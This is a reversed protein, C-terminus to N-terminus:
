AADAVAPPGGVLQAVLNEATHYAQWARRGAAARARYAPYDDCVARVAAALEAPGRFAEGAGDPLASALWTGKPVVAAKGSLIAEALVGSSRSRYNEVRYPCLVVDAAALLDYYESGPLFRDRGVLHVHERPYKALEDLAALLAPDSEDKHLTAQIVFRVRGTRVHTEHLDRVLGPLLAFGKEARVDGLFLVCLPGDAHAKPPPLLGTRFPIPIVDFPLGALTTYDVALPTTDTYFRVRPTDPFGRVADFYARHVATYDRHFQDATGADVEAPTSVAHRFVLHFTPSGAGLEAVLRRVALAERGHATPLYVHDGPGIGTLCLFRDLDAQFQRTLDAEIEIGAAKLATVLCEEVGPAAPHPDPIDRRKALGWLGPPALERLVSKALHRGRVLRMVLPPVLTNTLRKVRDRGSPAPPEPAPEFRARLFEDMTASGDLVADFPTRQLAALSGRLGFEGAPREVRLNGWHNLRFLPFVAVGPPLPHDPDSLDCDAHAALTVRFGREVAAEAIAVANEFYHGRFDTMGNNVIAFQRTV